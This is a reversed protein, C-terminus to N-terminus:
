DLQAGVPLALNGMDLCKAEHSSADVFSEFEEQECNSCKWAANKVLKASALLLVMTETSATDGKTTENTTLDAKASVKPPNTASTGNEAEADTKKSEESLTTDEKTESGTFLDKQVEALDEEGEATPDEDGADNADIIDAKATASDQTEGTELVGAEATIEPGPTSRKSRASRSKTTSPAKDDTNSAPAIYNGRKAKSKPAKAKSASPAEEVKNPVNHEGDAEVNAKRSRDSKSTLPHEEDDSSDEGDDQEEEDIGEKDDVTTGKGHKSTLNDVVPYRKKRDFQFIFGIDKLRKIREETLYSHYGDKKKKWQFRQRMVWSALPQNSKWRRPVACHGNCKKFEVLLDIYQDWVGEFRKLVTERIMTSTKTNFVFGQEVLRAEKEDDLTHYDGEQKARHHRRQKGVWRSLM